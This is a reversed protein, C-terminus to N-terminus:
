LGIDHHISFHLLPGYKISEIWAPQYIYCGLSQLIYCFSQMQYCPEVLINLYIKKKKKLYFFRETIPLISKIINPRCSVLLALPLIIIKMVTSKRLTNGAEGVM